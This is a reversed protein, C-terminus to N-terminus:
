RFGMPRYVGFVIFSLCWIAIQRPATTMDTDLWWGIMGVLWNVICAAAVEPPMLGTGADKTAAVLQPDTLRDLLVDTGRTRIEASFWSGAKKGLMMRYLRRNTAVHDFLSTFATLPPEAHEGFPHDSSPDFEVNMWETSSLYQTAPGLQALMEGLAEDFVDSMLAYKDAYHRYLTARSVMAREAIDTATVTDFGNEEVLEVLARRLLTRTRRVRLDTESHTM